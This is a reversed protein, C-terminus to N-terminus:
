WVPQSPVPSFGWSQGSRYIQSRCSASCPNAAPWLKSVRRAINTPVISLSIERAKSSSPSGLITHWGTCVGCTASALCGRSISCSVYLHNTFFSRFLGGCNRAGSVCSLLSNGVKSRHIRATHDRLTNGRHLQDEKQTAIVQLHDSNATEQSLFGDRM